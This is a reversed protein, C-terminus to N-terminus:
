RGTARRSDAADLEDRVMQVANRSFLRITGARAVPRIHQRTALIHLVRHLPRGVEAAIVGPTILQPPAHTDTPM